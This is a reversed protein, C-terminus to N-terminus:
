IHILSLALLNRAITVYTTGETLVVPHGRFGPLRILLAGLTVLAISVLERRQGNRM